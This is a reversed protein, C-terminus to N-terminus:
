RHLRATRDNHYRLGGDHIHRPLMLNTEIVPGDSGGNLFFSGVTNQCSHSLFPPDLPSFVEIVEVILHQM